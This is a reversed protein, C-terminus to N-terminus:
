AGPPGAQGPQLPPHSSSPCEVRRRRKGRAGVKKQLVTEAQKGQRDRGQRVGKGQRKSDAEAARSSKQQEGVQNKSSPKLVNPGPKSSQGEGIGERGRSKGAQESPPALGPLTTEQVAQQRGAADPEGNRVVAGRANQSFFIRSRSM